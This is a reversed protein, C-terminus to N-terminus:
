KFVAVGMFISVGMKGQLRGRFNLDQWAGRKSCETPPEVKLKWSDTGVHLFNLKKIM